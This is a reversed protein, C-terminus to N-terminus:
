KDMEEAVRRAAEAFQEKTERRANQMRDHVVEPDHVGEDYAKQVAEAMATQILMALPSKKMGGVNGSTFVGEVIRPTVEAPLTEEEAM